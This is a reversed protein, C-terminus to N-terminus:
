KGWLFFPAWAFPSSYEPSKIMDLQVRRFAAQSTNGALLATYFIEGFFKKTKRSPVYVNMIVAGSGNALFIYPESRHAANQDAALDSIIVTAFTPLSFLEGFLVRKWSTISQGDSLVLYSNGPKRDNFHVEAAMHLVDCHEKQLTALIAQQNFYLRADKYFARIDRLEYEVDWSTEGPHGLAVVDRVIPLQVGNLFLASASPLYSVLYQEALYPNNQFPSKRLAHLPLSPLEGPLVVLLKSVASIDGEIPRIYAEYLSANLQQLRQDIIRIQSQASDIRAERRRLLEVFERTMAYVSDKGIAAVQVAARANTVVFAYLSRKTPVHEVLAM